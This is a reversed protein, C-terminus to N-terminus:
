KVQITITDSIYAVKDVQLMYWCKLQKVTEGTNTLLPSIPAKAHGKWGWSYGKKPAHTFFIDDAHVSFLVEENKNAAPRLRKPMIPKGNQKLQMPINSVDNQVFFSFAVNKDGMKLVGPKAACKIVGNAANEGTSFHTGSYNISLNNEQASAYLCCLMNIILISAFRLRNM